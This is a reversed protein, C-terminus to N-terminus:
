AEGFLRRLDDLGKRSRSRSQDPTSGTSQAEKVSIERVTFNEEIVDRWVSMPADSKLFREAAERGIGSVRLLRGTDFEVDLTRRDSDYGASRIGGRHIPKRTM